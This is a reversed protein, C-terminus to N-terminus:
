VNASGMNRVGTVGSATGVNLNKLSTMWQRAWPWPRQTVSYPKWSSRSSLANRILHTVYRM